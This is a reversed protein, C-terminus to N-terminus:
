VRFGTKSNGRCAKRVYRGLKRLEHIELKYENVRWERALLIRPPRSIACSLSGAHAKAARFVPEEGTQICVSGLLMGPSLLSFMMIMNVVQLFEHLM